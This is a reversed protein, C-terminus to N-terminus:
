REFWGARAFPRLIGVPRGVLRELPVTRLSSRSDASDHSNDGLLFMHGRPVSFVDPHRGRGPRGGAAPTAALDRFVRLRGISVGQTGCAGFQLGNIRQAQRHEPLEVPELLLTEDDRVLFVRGDLYGFALQMPTDAFPLITRTMQVEGQVVLRLTGSREWILVLDHDRYEHAFVLGKTGPGATVAMEIGIDAYYNKGEWRRKGGPSLYSDDLGKYTAMFGPIFTAMGSEATRRAAPQLDALIQPVAPRAPPLTVSGDAALQAATGPLRFFDALTLQCPGWLHRFLDIRLDRHELPDKCVRQLQGAQDSRWLDGRELKVKCTGLAALRKVIHHEGPIASRFVVLDFPQPRRRWWHTKDVVVLDGALRDGHLTPEMSPSPVRYRECLHVRILQYVVFGIVLILLAELLRGSWRSLFQRM